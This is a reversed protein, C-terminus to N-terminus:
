VAWLGYRRDMYDIASENSIADALRTVRFHNSSSCGFKVLVDLSIDWLCIRSIVDSLVEPTSFFTISYHVFTALVTRNAADCLAITVHAIRAHM